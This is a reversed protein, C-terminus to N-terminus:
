DLRLVLINLPPRLLMSSAEVVFLALAFSESTFAVLLRLIGLLESPQSSFEELLLPMSLLNLHLLLDFSVYNSTLTRMCNTDRVNTCSSRFTLDAAGLSGEDM